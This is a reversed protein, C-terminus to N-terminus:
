NDLQGLRQCLTPLFSSWNRPICTPGCTLFGEPCAHAEGVAEISVDTDLATSTNCNAEDSQDRCDAVGDCEWTGPICSGDACQFERNSDCARAPRTCNQEDLGNSCDMQGDCVWQVPICLSWADNCSFFDLECTPDGCDAEDSEDVCDPSGDCMWAKPICNKKDACLFSGEKDCAVASTNCNAEDRGDSCDITGDCQWTKPISAGDACQLLKDPDSTSTCNYEDLGNLCDPLGDCVWFHSICLNSTDDCSFEGNPCGGQGSTTPVM